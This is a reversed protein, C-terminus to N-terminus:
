RQDALAPQGLTARADKVLLVLHLPDTPSVMIGPILHGYFAAAEETEAHILLARCGIGDSLALLRKIADALLGAGIGRGEHDVHVGLRALLAVPQPYRGAGKRMRDPAHDLTLSAMCWAYYAVVEDGDVPTVVLVKTSGSAASQRAHRRLWTTQERSRCTFADLRDAPRLLRPARYATM